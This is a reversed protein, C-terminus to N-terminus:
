ASRDNRRSKGGLDRELGHDPELRQSRPRTGPQTISPPDSAPFSDALESDLQDDLEAATRTDRKTKMTAPM